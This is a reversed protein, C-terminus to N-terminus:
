PDSIWPPLNFTFTCRILNSTSLLVIVRHGCPHLDGEYQVDEAGDTNADDRYDPSGRAGATSDSKSAGAPPRTPQYRPDDKQDADRKPRGGPTAPAPPR